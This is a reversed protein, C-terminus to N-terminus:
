ECDMYVRVCVASYAWPKTTIIEIISICAKSGNVGTAVGHSFYVAQPHPKEMETRNPKGLPETRM